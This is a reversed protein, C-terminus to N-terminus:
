CTNIYSIDCRMTVPFCQCIVLTAWWTAQLRYERKVSHWRERAIILWLIASDTALLHDQLHGTGCAAIKSTQFCRAAHIAHILGKFPRNAPSLISCVPWFILPETKLVLPRKDAFLGCLRERPPGASTGAPPQRGQMWHCASGIALSAM